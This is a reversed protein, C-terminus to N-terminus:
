LAQRERGGVECHNERFLGRIASLQSLMAIMTSWGTERLIIKTQLSSSVHDLRCWQCCRLGSSTM